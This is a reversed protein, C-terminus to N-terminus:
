NKNLGLFCIFSYANVDYLIIFSIRDRSISPYESEEGADAYWPPYARVINLRILEDSIGVGPLDNLPTHKVENM